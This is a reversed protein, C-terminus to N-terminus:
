HGFLKCRKLISSDALVIPVVLEDPRSVLQLNARREQSISVSGQYPRKKSMRRLRQFRSPKEEKKRPSVLTEQFGTQTKPRYPPFFTRKSGRFTLRTLLM